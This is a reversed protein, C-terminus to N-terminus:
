GYGLLAHQTFDFEIEGFVHVFGLFIFPDNPSVQHMFAFHVTSDLDPDRHTLQFSVAVERRLRLRWVQKQDVGEISIIFSWLQFRGGDKSSNGSNNLGGFQRDVGIFKAM